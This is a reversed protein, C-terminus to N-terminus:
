LEAVGRAFVIEAGGRGSSLSSGGKLEHDLLAIRAQAAEAHALGIRGAQEVVKKAVWPNVGQSKLTSEVAPRPMNEMLRRARAVQAIHRGLTLTLRVPHEGQAVLDEAVRMLTEKDRSAWADTLAFVKTETSETALERVLDATVQENGAAAVILEIDTRMRDTSDYGTRRVLEAAVGRPVSSGLDTFREVVWKEAERENQPGPVEHIGDAGVAKRIRSRADLKACTMVLSADESPAKLYAVLADVDDKGWADIGTAIILRNEALLGLMSCADVIEAAPTSDANWREVAAEDFQSAIQAIFDHAAARDTGIVLYAPRLDM